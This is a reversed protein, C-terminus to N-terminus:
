KDRLFHADKMSSHNEIVYNVLSFDDSTFVKHAKTYINIKAGFKLAEM